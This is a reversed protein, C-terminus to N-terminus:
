PWRRFEVALVLSAFDRGETSRYDTPPVLVFSTWHTIKRPLCWHKSNGESSQYQQFPLWETFFGAEMVGLPARHTVRYLSSYPLDLFCSRNFLLFEDPSSIAFTFNKIIVDYL